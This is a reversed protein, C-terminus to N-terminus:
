LRKHSRANILISRTKCDHKQSKREYIIYYRKGIMNTGIMKIIPRHNQEM